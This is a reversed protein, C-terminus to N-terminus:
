TAGVSSLYFSFVAGIGGAVVATIIPIKIRKIFNIM